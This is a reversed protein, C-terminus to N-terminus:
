EFTVGIWKSVESVQEGILGLAVPATTEAVLWKKGGTEFRAGPGPLDALGMAHGYDRSVMVAAPIGAQELVIAWLLARSDCDGRGELAASVPNVFDSGGPDREYAFNQVWALVEGAFDRGGEGEAGPSRLNWRRELTFAADALRRFSDRYVARYFRIWAEKWRPGSAQRRLLEFERDVLAQAGEADKEAIVAEGAGGALRATRREGPPYAFATVPGPARRDGAAPALSDLASLHFLRLDGGSLPGYALALLLPRPRGGELELCLGWGGFGKGGDADPGPPPRSGPAPFDLELLVARGDGYGFSSKGGRNGLRRNVDEALAEASAFAGSPYAALDFVAGEPSRFSFRDKGDGGSLQYGEPLDLSFGWATSHLPEAPLAPPLLGLIIGLAPLLNKKM